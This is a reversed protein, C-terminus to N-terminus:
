LTYHWSETELFANLICDYEIFIELKWQVLFVWFVFIGVQNEKTDKDNELLWKARPFIFHSKPILTDYHQKLFRIEELITVVM